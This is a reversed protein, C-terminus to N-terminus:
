KGSYLIKLNSLHEGEMDGKLILIQNAIAEIPIAMKSDGINVNINGSTILKGDMTVLQYHLKGSIISHLNLKITNKTIPNEQLRWNNTNQNCDQIAIIPSISFQNQKDVCKIRYFINQAVSLNNVQYANNQQVPIAKVDSWVIADKSGELAIKEINFNNQLTFNINVTCNENVDYKLESASISLPITYKKLVFEIPLAYQNIFTIETENSSINYQKSVAGTGKQSTILWNGAVTFVIVAPNPKSLIENTFNLIPNVLTIDLETPTIMKIISISASDSKIYSPYNTDALMIANGGAFMVTAIAQYNTLQVSHAISDQRIIKYDPITNNSMTTQIAQMESVTTQPVVLYEYKASAPAKGHNIYASMMNASNFLGNNNQNPTLQLKKEITLSDTNNIFLYGSNFRDILWNNQSQAFNETLPFTPKAVANIHLSTALITDDDLTQQLINTCTNSLTNRNKINSGLCLIKNDFFFYSKKFAFSTDHKDTIKKQKFDFGFVGISGTNKYLTDTFIPHPLAGALKGDSFEFPYGINTTSSLGLSDWPLHISTTGPWKNWDWGPTNNTPYALNVYGNKDGAYNIFLNGYSQYRGFLNFNAFIETGAFENNLAKISVNVNMGNKTFRYVGAPSYNLAIFGTKYNAIGTNILSNDITGWQRNYEKTLLREAVPYYYQEMDAIYRIDSHSYTPYNLHPHRGIMGPNYKYDNCLYMYTLMANRYFTFNPTDVCFSTNRLPYLYSKNTKNYSYMYANHHFDHHFGLGDASIGDKGYMPQMYNNLYKKNALLHTKILHYDTIFFVCTAMRMWHALLIEDSNTIAIMNSDMIRGLTFQYKFLDYMDAKFSSDLQSYLLCLSARLNDSTYTQLTAGIRFRSADSFGNRIFHKVMITAKDRSIMDNNHIYNGVFATLATEYSTSYDGYPVILCYQSDMYEIAKAKVDGNPLLSFGYWNYLSDAKLLNLNTPVAISTTLDQFIRNRITDIEISDQQTAISITNLQQSNFYHYLTDTYYSITGIMGRYPIDPHVSSRIAGSIPPYSSENAFQIRDLLLKSTINTSANRIRMKVIANSTNFPNLRMHLIYGIEIPLWGKFNQYFEYSFRITGDALLFEVFFKNNPLKQNSFLNLCMATGNHFGVIPDIPATLTDLVGNTFQWSLSNAGDRFYNTDITVSNPTTTQWNAPIGNEFSISQASISYTAIFFLFTYLIKM